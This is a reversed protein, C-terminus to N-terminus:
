ILTTLSSASFGSFQPTKLREGSVIIDKGVWGSGRSAAHPQSCAGFAYTSIYVNTLQESYQSIDWTIPDGTASSSCITKNTVADVLSLSARGVGWFSSAGASYQLTDVNSLDYNDASRVSDSSTTSTGGSVGASTQRPLSIVQGDQTIKILAAYTNTPTLSILIAVTLLLTLVKLKNKM